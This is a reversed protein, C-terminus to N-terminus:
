LLTMLTPLSKSLNPCIRIICPIEHQFPVLSNARVALSICTLNPKFITRSHQSLSNKPVVSMKWFFLMLQGWCGGASFNSFKLMINWSEILLFLKEFCWFLTSNLFRPSESTRLLSKGPGVVETAESVEDVEAVESAEVAEFAGNWWFVKQDQHYSWGQCWLSWYPGRKTSHIM